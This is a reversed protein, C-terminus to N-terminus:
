HLRAEFDSGVPISEIDRFINRAGFSLILRDYLRAVVDGIGERRYSIFVKTM